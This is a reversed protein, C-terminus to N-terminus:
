RTPSRRGISDARERVRGSDVVLLARVDESRVFIRQSADPAGLADLPQLLVGRGDKESTFVDAAVLKGAVPQDTGADKLYLVLNSDRFRLLAQAWPESGSATWPLVLHSPEQAEWHNKIRRSVVVAHLTGVAFGLCIALAVVGGGWLTFELLDRRLDVRGALLPRVDPVVNPLPFRGLLVICVALFALYMGVLVRGPVGIQPSDAVRYVTLSLANRVRWQLALRYAEGPLLVVALLALLTISSKVM